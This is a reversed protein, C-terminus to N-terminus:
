QSRGSYQSSDQLSSSVQQWEFQLSLGDALASMFFELSYIIIIIIIITFSFVLYFLTSKLLKVTVWDGKVVVLYRPHSSAFLVVVVVLLLLLKEAVKLYFRIVWDWDPSFSFEVMTVFPIYVLWFRGSSILCMINEPNRFYLRIVWYWRLTLYSFTFFKNVLLKAM